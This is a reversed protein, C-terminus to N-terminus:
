YLDYPVSADPFYPDHMRWLPTTSSYSAKTSASGEQCFPNGWLYMCTAGIGVVSGALFVEARPVGCGSIGMIFILNAVLLLNKKM